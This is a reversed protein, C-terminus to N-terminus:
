ATGLASSLEAIAGALTLQMCCSNCSALFHSSTASKGAILQGYLGSPVFPVITFILIAVYKGRKRTPALESTVALATLETIGAGAGVLTMGGTRTLVLDCYRHFLPCIFTEMTKATAGVTTGICLLASGILAVYRRGMLDSLSGVFPCVGALALLGGLVQLNCSIYGQPQSTRVSLGSGDTLVELTM